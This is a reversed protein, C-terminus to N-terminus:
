RRSVLTLKVASAGAGDTLLMARVRMIRERSLLRLVASPLHLTLTASAGPGVAFVTRALLLVRHQTASANSYFSLKGRCEGGGAPCRVLVKIAGTTSPKLRTSLMALSPAVAHTGLVVQLGPAFPNGSFAPTPTNASGMAGTVASTESNAPAKEEGSGEPVQATASGVTLVAAKTAAEGSSNKFVARYENGSQGATPQWLTLTDRSAGAIKEWSAGGDSSVEWQVSPAPQGTAAAEFSVPEGENVSASIPNATVELGHPCPITFPERAGYSIGYAAETVLRWDYERGCQLGPVTTSLAARERSAPLQGLLIVRAPESYFHAEAFIQAAATVPTDGSWAYGALGVSGNGEATASATQAFTEIPGSVPELTTSVGESIVETRSGNELRLRWYITTKPQLGGVSVHFGGEKWLNRMGYHSTATLTHGYAPTEGYELTVKHPPCDYANGEGWTLSNPTITPKAQRGEELPHPCAQTAFSQWPGAATGAPTRSVLRYRYSDGLQVRTNAVLEKGACEYPDAYAPVYFAQAAPGEIEYYFSVNPGHAPLPACFNVTYESVRAHGSDSVPPPAEGPATAGLRMRVASGADDMWAEQSSPTFEVSGGQGYIPEAEMRECGADRGVCGEWTLAGSAPDIGFLDNGTQTALLLHTGDASVAIRKGVKATGEVPTAPLPLNTCGGAEVGWCGAYELSGASTLHALVIPTSGGARGSRFGGIVYVDRSNPAVAIAELPPLGPNEAAVPCATGSLGDEGVSGLCGTFRLAGDPERKYVNVQQNMMVNLVFQGNSTVAAMGAYETQEGGRPCISRFTYCRGMSMTGGAGLHIDVLRSQLTLYLDHEDPAITLQETEYQGASGQPAVCPAVEGAAQKEEEEEEEEEEEGEPARLCESYHLAGTADVTFRAVGARSAVYLNQGDPAIVESQAAFMANEDFQTCDPTPRDSVCSAFQPAEQGNLREQVITDAAQNYLGGAVGVTYKQELVYANSGNPATVTMMARGLDEEHPASPTCGPSGTAGKLCANERLPVTVAGAATATVALV